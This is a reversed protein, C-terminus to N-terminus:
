KGLAYWLFQSPSSDSNRLTFSTASLSTVNTVVARGTNLSDTFTAVVAYVQAPFPIPYLTSGLGSAPIVSSLGWQLITGGALRRWGSVANNGAFVTGGYDYTLTSDVISWQSGNNVVEIYEGSGMIAPSANLYSFGSGGFIVDSGSPAVRLRFSSSSGGVNVRICAGTGVSSLPPLTITINNADVNAVFVTGVDSSTLPYSTSTASSLVRATKFSGASNKVFETNAMKLSSDSFPPTTTGVINGSPDFTMRPQGNVLVVASGDNNARFAISM